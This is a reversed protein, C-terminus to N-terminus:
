PLGMMQFEEGLAALIFVRKPTANSSGEANFRESVGISKAWGKREGM